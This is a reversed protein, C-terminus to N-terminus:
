SVPALWVNNDESDSSEDSSVPFIGPIIFAGHAPEHSSEGSSEIAAESSPVFQAPPADPALWVPSSPFKPPAMDATSVDDPAQWVPPALPSSAAAGSGSAGQEEMLHAGLDQNGRKRNASYYIIGFFLFGVGAVIVYLFNAASKASNLGEQGGTVCGIVQFCTTCIACDKPCQDAMDCSLLGIGMMEEAFNCECSELNDADDCTLSFDWLWLNEYTDCTGVDFDSYPSYSGDGDGGGYGQGGSVYEGNTDTSSSGSNRGDDGNSNSTSNGSENSGSSSSDGGSTSNGSGSTGSSSSGDGNNSSTSNGSENGSSSGNGGGSSSGGNSGSSSSNSGSGGTSGSSGSSSNSGGSSTGNHHVYSCSPATGPFIWNDELESATLNLCGIYSPFSSSSSSSKVAFFGFTLNSSSHKMRYMTSVADRM